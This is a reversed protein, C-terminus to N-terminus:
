PELRKLMAKLERRLQDRAPAAQRLVQTVKDFELIDVNYIDPKIYIAPLSAKLKEAIIANQMIDFIGLISRFVNPKGQRSPDRHGMLDIAVVADCDTLVDHPVPNVGAGDILTRGEVRVPTLLGPLSMSARIAPLLDGSELVVQQSSWFDAAVVRLPIKLQEFRTVGMAEQVVAMFRNGRFLGNAGFELDKFEIWRLMVKLSPMKRLPDNQLLEGVWERIAASSMGSAYLAGLVAGLSTGSIRHPRIGLEDFVELMPIIALGRVGGGGLALGIKVM